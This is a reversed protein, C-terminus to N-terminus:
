RISTVLWHNWYPIGLVLTKKLVALWHTAVKIEWPQKFARPKRPLRVPSDNVIAIRISFAKVCTNLFWNGENQRFKLLEKWDMFIPMEGWGLFMLIPKQRQDECRTLKIIGDRDRNQAGIRRDSVSAKHGWPKTRKIKVLCKPQLLQPQVCLQLVCYLSGTHIGSLKRRHYYSTLFFLPTPSPWLKVLLIRFM